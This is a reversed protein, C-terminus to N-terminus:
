GDRGGGAGTRGSSPGRLYRQPTTGVTRRFAALFASPTAYGVAHAVRAVPHGEALLPLAARLRLHTRWRDFSMGTEQAFLRSLTRRSTGVARALAELTRSDTPDALLLAAVARARDDLPEPVSIPTSPLPHLLDFVVAEARQRAPPALDERGLHSLLGALLDDVAVVTPRRWDVPCPDPTLYLSHFVSDRPAGTRHVTGAPIWLARTPPLVWSDDGVAVGLVGRTAWALQHRPHEHPAFWQGAALPFAGVVIAGVPDAAVRPPGAINRGAPVAAGPPTIRSSM